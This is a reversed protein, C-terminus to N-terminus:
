IKNNELWLFSLSPLLSTVVRDYFIHQRALDAIKDTVGQKLKLLMHTLMFPFLCLPPTAANEATVVESKVFKLVVYVCM